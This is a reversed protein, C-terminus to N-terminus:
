RGSVFLPHAATLEELRALVQGVRVDPPGSVEIWPVGAGALVHRFWGTMDERVHEGDRLGDQEFPVGAPTTLM